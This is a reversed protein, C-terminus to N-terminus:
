HTVQIEPIINLTNLYDSVRSIAEAVDFKTNDQINKSNFIPVQGILVKVRNEFASELGCMQEFTLGTNKFCDFPDEIKELHPYVMNLVPCYYESWKDTGLLITMACSSETNGKLSDNGYAEILKNLIDKM